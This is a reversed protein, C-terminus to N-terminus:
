FETAERSWTAPFSADNDATRRDPAIVRKTTMDSKATMDRSAYM